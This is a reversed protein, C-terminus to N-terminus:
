SMKWAKVTKGTWNKFARSFVSPESFGLRYSVERLTYDQRLYRMALKARLQDLVSQYCTGCAFLRRQLSRSSMGLERATTEISLNGRSLKKTLVGKVVEIFEDSLVTKSLTQRAQHELMEALDADAFPLRIELLDKDFIMRDSKQGFRIRSEFFPYDASSYHQFDVRAPKLNKQTALSFRQLLVTFTYEASRKLHEPPTDASNQLELFVKDDHMGVNVSAGSNILPYYRPLKRFIDGLTDFSLMLYDLLGYAGVPLNRATELGIFDDKVDRFVNEWIRWMTENNIRANPIEVERIFEEGGFGRRRYNKLLERTSTNITTDASM